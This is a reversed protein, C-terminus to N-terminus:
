ELVTALSWSLGSAGTLWVSVILAWLYMSTGGPTSEWIVKKTRVASPDTTSRFAKPALMEKTRVTEM